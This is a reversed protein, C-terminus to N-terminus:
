FLRKKKRIFSFFFLYSACVAGRTWPFRGHGQTASRLAGGARSWVRALHVGGQPLAHTRASLRPAERAQKSVDHSRPGVEGVIDLAALVRIAARVRRLLYPIEVSLTEFCDEPRAAQPPYVAAECRHCLWADDFTIWQHASRWDRVFELRRFAPDEMASAIHTVVADRGPLPMAERSGVSLAKWEGSALWYTLITAGTNSVGRDANLVAYIGTSCSGVHKMVCRAVGENYAREERNMTELYEM